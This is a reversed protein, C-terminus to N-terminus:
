NRNNVKMFANISDWDVSNRVCDYHHLRIGQTKLSTGNIRIGIDTIKESHIGKEIEYECAIGIVGKLKKRQVLRKTFGVSPTIYFQYGKEEAHKYVDGCGCLNCKSCVIGDTKSFRAPCKDAILCHPLIVAIDANSLKQFEPRYYANITTMIDSRKLRFLVQVKYAYIHFLFKLKRLMVLGDSGM